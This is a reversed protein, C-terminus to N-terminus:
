EITLKRRTDKPVAIVAKDVTIIIVKDGMRKARVTEPQSNTPFTTKFQKSLVKHGHETKEEYSYSVDIGNEDVRIDADPATITIYWNKEEEKWSTTTVCKEQKKECSCKGNKCRRPRESTFYVDSEFLSNFLYNILLSNFLM